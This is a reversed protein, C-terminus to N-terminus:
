ETPMVSWRLFQDIFNDLDGDLVKDPSSSEFGTRHDKVMKYPHLVYSRIQAGWGIEKKEAEDLDGDTYVAFANYLYCLCNIMNWNREEAMELSRM